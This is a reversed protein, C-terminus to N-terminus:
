SSPTLPLTLRFVAGSGDKDVYSLEGGHARVVARAVPLGLGTGGDKTTQFPEFCDISCPIGPGSDAVLIVAEDGEQNVSLELHGGNPMAEMANKCLNLLAQKLKFSDVSVAPLAACFRKTLEINQAELQDNHESCIHEVLQCLDTSDCRLKQRRSLMRFEDLLEGLRVIEQTVTELSAVLQPDDADLARLRRQALQTHLKMNNLPNGVEHALTAATVGIDALRKKEAIEEQFRVKESIDRIFACYKLDDDGNLDTVSLEIPFEEGSKRRARVTRIRGIAHAEGTREYREIYGDHEEAYPAAMLERVNRGMIEDPEFQFIEAAARNFRVINAHRNIVVVADQTAEILSELRDEESPTM